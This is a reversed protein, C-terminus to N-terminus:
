KKEKKFFFTEPNNYTAIKKKEIDNMRVTEVTKKRHSRKKKYSGCRIKAIMVRGNILSFNWPLRGNEGESGVYLWYSGNCGFLFVGLNM